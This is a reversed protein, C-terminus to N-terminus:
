KFEDFYMRVAGNTITHKGQAKRGFYDEFNEKDSIVGITWSPFRGPLVGMDRYLKEVGEGVDLRKGWPPNTIIFGPATIGAPPLADQM